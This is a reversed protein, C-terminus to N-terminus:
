AFREPWKPDVKVRLELYVKFGSVAEIEKRAAMSIEKVKSARTGIIMKKYREETTWITAQIFRSGDPRTELEDLAIKISYPLEQDLKLFVKERILEELWQNHSLDTLQLEPYHPESEPMLDFLADVLKNLNTRRIASVTLTQLQGVNATECAEAHAREKAPLDAKNIVAIKPIRSANLLRRIHEEEPGPERSPDMVYVVADVGELAEGVFDNLVKSVRDKRGLFVGPTDVFVIQGRPDHLIGRIPHRTTQPKPTVIAVKSGILSNLLTSKGVNSRGALTVFGSKM